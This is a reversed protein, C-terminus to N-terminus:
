WHYVYLTVEGASEFEEFDPTIWEVTMVEKRPALPNTPFTNHGRLRDFSRPVNVM